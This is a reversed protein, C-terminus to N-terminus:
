SQFLEPMVPYHMSALFLNAFDTVSLHDLHLLMHRKHVRAVALISTCNFAAVGGEEVFQGVSLVHEVDVLADLVGTLQTVFFHNVQFAVDSQDVFLNAAVLTWFAFFGELRLWIQPQVNCANVKPHLLGTRVASFLHRIHLAM